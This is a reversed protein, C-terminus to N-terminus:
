GNRRSMTVRYMPQVDDQVVTLRHDAIFMEHITKAGFKKLEVGATDDGKARAHILTLYGGPNLSKVLRDAVAPLADRELYYLIESCVVLDYTGPPDNEFIDFRIVNVNPLEAMKEKAQKVALDSIDAGLVTDAMAALEKTLAGDGCGVDIASGFRGVSRLVALTRERKLREYESTDCDYPDKKAFKMNFYLRIFFRNKALLQRLRLATTVKHIATRLFPGIGM